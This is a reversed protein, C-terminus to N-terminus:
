AYLLSNNYVRLPVSTCDGRNCVTSFFFQLILVTCLLSRIFCPMHVLCCKYLNKRHSENLKSKLNYLLIMNQCKLSSLKLAYLILLLDGVFDTIQKNSFISSYSKFHKDYKYSICSANWM